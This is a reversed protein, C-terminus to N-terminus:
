SENLGAVAAAAARTPVDLKALIAVVHKSVTPRSIFLRAAIERDSFGQAVLGLVERERRSLRDLSSPAREQM